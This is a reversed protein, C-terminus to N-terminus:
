FRVGMVCVDDIQELEGRWSEFANDLLLKQDEMSNNQLKLLLKKFNSIKFKKGNAGGFQDSFGDSFIYLTDGPDVEIEHTTFPVEEGFRGIPQRDAKIEFVEQGGKRIIWLPNHSGSYSLRKGKLACLAIDMGDMVKEESKGFETIVFEKTQDLITGPTTLGNERVARNLGNNCMVSIMAGPVGHGTCDAVAFYVVGEKSELWYFDGAVIDKPRYLIFSNPFHSKILKDPPLIASQIRKAYVISDLIDTQKQQLEEKQKYIIANAQKKEKFRKFLIVLVLAIMGLGILLFTRVLKNKAIIQEKIKQQIRLEEAHFLNKQIQAISDEIVKRKFKGSLSSILLKDKLRQGYLTDQLAYFEAQIDIAKKYSGRQYYLDKLVSFIRLQLEKSKITRAIGLTKELNGIAKNAKGLKYQAKGINIISETTSPIGAAAEERIVLGKQFHDLAQLDKGMKLYATGLNNYIRGIGVKNEEQTYLQLSTDFCTLAEEPRNLEILCLGINNHTGAVKLNYNNKSVKNIYDRYSRIADEYNGATFKLIGLYDDTICVWNLKEAKIFYTIAQNFMNSSTVLDELDLFMKGSRFYAHGILNNNGNFKSNVLLNGAKELAANRDQRAIYLDIYILEYMLASVTDANDYAERVLGNIKVGVGATDMVLIRSTLERYIDDPKVQGWKCAPTLLFLGIILYKYLHKM